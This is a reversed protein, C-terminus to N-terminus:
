SAAQELTAAADAPRARVRDGDHLSPRGRRPRQPPANSRTTGLARAVHDIMLERAVTEIMWPGRYSGRGATNSYVTKGSGAAVGIRYPGPFICATLLLASSALLAM